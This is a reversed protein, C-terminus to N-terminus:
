WHGPPPAPQRAVLTPLYGAAAVQVSLRWHALIDLGLHKFSDPQSVGVTHCENPRVKDYLYGGLEAEYKHIKDMGISSLYDCAAGLGIAQLCVVCSIEATSGTKGKALQIASESLWRLCVVAAVTEETDGQGAQDDGVV